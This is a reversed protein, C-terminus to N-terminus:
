RSSTGPPAPTLLSALTSKLRDPRVPKKFLVGPLGELRSRKLVHDKDYYFATMLVVVTKPWRRKTELFLQYGDMGPMVVDSLVIDFAQRELADLAQQGDAAPVVRCFEEQLIEAVSERVGADDDVVLICRGALPRDESIRPSLDIMTADGLYSTRAYERHEAMEHLRGLQAEIRDVERRIAEVHRLEHTGSKTSPRDVLVKELLGVHNLIVQLPNSIEHSFGIAIDGLVALQDRRLIESIDKAFGFTGSEKGDEDYLIFGSIAVDIRRNDKAVFTTPFNVLRGPEGHESSRMAAMVRRAEEASPYLHVVDRGIIEDRSYGLNERAGDNYYSVTGMRDTAVVIDPSAELLRQLLEASLPM